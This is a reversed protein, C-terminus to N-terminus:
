ETVRAFVLSCNSGGFGFSNTMAFEIQAVRPERLISFNIDSGPQELNMTGPLLQTDFTQFALVAEVIGAAGLTHGTMGKTSSAAVGHEFVRSMAISEVGDNTRTGTGHLNVYGIQEPGLGARSLAAQMARVAGEGQPHPSSMHHADASEGYGVLKALPREPRSRSLLVFAAAEGINLGDRHADFPRCRDASVLQLSNFGHLTSRCLSDVGAVIVADVLGAELWRTACAFIKASSSCATSVTMTPGLLGLVQTLFAGTSHPNHVTPQLYVPAFVSQTTLQEYAAETRGISSTSTGMLLGVREPGWRRITAKVRTLFGDGQLGLLALRNNRSEFGAFAPNWGTEMPERVRGVWAASKLEDWDNPQLPTLHRAITSRTADLGLGAASVLTCAEIWVPPTGALRSLRKDRDSAINSHVIM